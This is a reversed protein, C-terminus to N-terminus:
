TKEVDFEIKKIQSPPYFTVTKSGGGFLKSKSTDVGEEIMRKAMGQADQKDSVNFELVEKSLLHVILIM